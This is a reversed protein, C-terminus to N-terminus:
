RMPSLQDTSYYAEVKPHSGNRGFTVLASYGGPAGEDLGGWRYEGNKLVPSHQTAAFPRRKFRRECEDNALRAALQAADAKSLVPVGPQKRDTVAVASRSCSAAAVVFALLCCGAAVAWISKMTKM